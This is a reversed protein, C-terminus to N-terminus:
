SIETQSQTQSQIPKEKQPQPEKQSQSQIPKEEEQLNEEGQITSDLNGEEDLLSEEENDLESFLEILKDENLDKILIDKSIEKLLESTEIEYRKVKIYCDELTNENVEELSIIFIIQYYYNDDQFDFMLTKDINNTTSVKIDFLQTNNLSFSGETFWLRINKELKDFFKKIRYEPDEEYRENLKRFNKYDLINKM